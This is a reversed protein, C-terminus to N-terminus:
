IGRFCGPHSIKSPQVHKPHTWETFGGLLRAPSNIIPSCEIEQCLVLSIGVAVPSWWPPPRTRCQYREWSAIRVWSPQTSPNLQSCPGPTHIPTPNNTTTTPRPCTRPRPLWWKQLDGTLCWYILLCNHHRGYNTVDATVPLAPVHFNSTIEHSPQGATEWRAALNDPIETYLEEAEATPRTDLFPYTDFGGATSPDYYPYANNDFYAM